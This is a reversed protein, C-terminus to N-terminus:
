NKDMWLRHYVGDAEVRTDTDPYDYDAAPPQLVLCLWM